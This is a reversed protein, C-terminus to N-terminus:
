KQNKGLTSQDKAQAAAQADLTSGTSGPVVPGDFTREYAESTAGKPGPMYAAMPAMGKKNFPDTDKTTARYTRDGILEHVQAILNELSGEVTSDQVIKQLMSIESQLRDSYDVMRRIKRELYDRRYLITDSIWAQARQMLVASPADALGPMGVIEGNSMMQANSTESGKMLFLPQSMSRVNLDLTADGGLVEYAAMLKGLYTTPPDKTYGIPVGGQDYNFRLSGVRAKEARLHTLRATALALQGRAFAAFREFQAANFTGLFDYAL